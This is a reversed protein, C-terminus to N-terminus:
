PTVETASMASGIELCVAGQRDTMAPRLRVGLEVGDQLDEGPHGVVNLLKQNERKWHRRSAPSPAGPPTCIRGEPGPIQPTQPGGATVPM